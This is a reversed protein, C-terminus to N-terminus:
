FDLDWSVVVRGAALDVESVYVGYIFPILREREGQVLMVDNAGTAIMERVLGLEHGTDSFVSLGIL